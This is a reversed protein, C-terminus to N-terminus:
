PNKKQQGPAQSRREAKWQRQVEERQDELTDLQAKLDDTVQDDGAAEIQEELREIERNIDQRRQRLADNPKPM